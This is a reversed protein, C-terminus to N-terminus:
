KLFCDNPEELITMIEPGEVGFGYETNDLMEEFDLLVVNSTEPDYLVNSKTADGHFMRSQRLVQVMLKLTEEMRMRGEEGLKRWESDSFQVGRMKSLVAVFGEHLIGGCVITGHHLLKPFFPADSSLQLYANVENVYKGPPNGQILTELQLITTTHDDIGIFITRTTIDCLEINRHATSASRQQECM